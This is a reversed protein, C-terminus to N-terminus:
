QGQSGLLESASKGVSKTEILMYSNRGVNKETM